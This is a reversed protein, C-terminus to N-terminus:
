RGYFWVISVVSVYLYIDMQNVDTIQVPKENIEKKARGRFLMEIVSDSFTFSKCIFKSYYKSKIHLTTKESTM